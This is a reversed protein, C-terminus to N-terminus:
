FISEWVTIVDSPEVLFSAVQNDKAMAKADLKLTVEKGDKRRKVTIKSADAIRTYGGAMAIADLLHVQEREPMDYSGAKQVQGLVTFRRKGYEAVTVTVQPNVLYDKALAARIAAAADNPTRGGVSVMGILPFSITGNQAVLLKSELDDEQFVKIEVVDNPALVYSAGSDAARAQPLSQLGLVFLASSLLTTAFGPCFFASLKQM